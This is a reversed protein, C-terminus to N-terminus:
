DIIDTQNSFHNVDPLFLRKRASPTHESDSISYSRNILTTHSPSLPTNNTQSLSIDSLSRKSQHKRTTQPTTKAPSILSIIHTVSGHGSGNNTSADSSGVLDITGDSRISEADWDAQHQNNNEDVDDDDDTVIISPATQDEIDQKELIWRLGRRTQGILQDTEVAARVGGVISRAEAAWEMLATANMTAFRNRQPVFLQILRIVSQIANRTQFHIASSTHVASRVSCEGRRISLLSILTGDATIRCDALTDDDYTMEGRYILQQRSADVGCRCEIHQKLTRITDSPFLRIDFQYDDLTCITLSLRQQETVTSSDNSEKDNTNKFNFMDVLLTYHQHDDNIIWKALTLDSPLSTMNEDTNPAAEAEFPNFSRKRRVRYWNWQIQKMDSHCDNDDSNYAAAIFSHVSADCDALTSQGYANINLRHYRHPTLHTNRIWVNVAVVACLEICKSQGNTAADTLSSTVIDRVCGYQQHLPILIPSLLHQKSRIGVTVSSRYENGVFQSILRACLRNTTATTLATVTHTAGASDLFRVSVTNAIAADSNVYLREIRKDIFNCHGTLQRVRQLVDDYALSTPLQPLLVEISDAAAAPPGTNTDAPVVSPSVTASTM